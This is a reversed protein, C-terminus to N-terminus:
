PVFNSFKTLLSVLIKEIFSVRHIQGNELSVLKGDAGMESNRQMLEEHLERDFIITDQPNKLIDAYSKIRYPVNAYVFTPEKFREFIQGPYFKEHLELLKLLYIIQHDGWYGIYAWPNEPEPAEWDFGERTLRYPNYGDATSANLFRCIMGPLFEPFSFSLAEWNQFIDRWNGQYNLSPSGDPNKLNIDFFNWPRSPDGHRRSFSIPLYELTLRLLDRDNCSKAITLLTEDKTPSAVKSFKEKFRNFVSKNSQELHKLFDAVDIDYNNGFIGGRMINFM